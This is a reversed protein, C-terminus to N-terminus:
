ITTRPTVLLKGYVLYTRVGAPSEIYLDYALVSKDLLATNEDSLTVSILKTSDTAIDIDDADTITFYLTDGGPTDRAQLKGTYGTLLEPDSPNFVVSFEFTGGQFVPLDTKIAM